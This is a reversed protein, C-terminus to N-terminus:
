LDTFNILKLAINLRTLYQWFKGKQKFLYVNKWNKNM